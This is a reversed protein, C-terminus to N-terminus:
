SNRILVETQCRLNCYKGVKNDLMYSVNINNLQFTYPSNNWIFNCTMNSENLACNNRVWENEDYIKDCVQAICTWNSNDLMKLEGQLIKIKFSYTIVIAILILLLIMIIINKYKM